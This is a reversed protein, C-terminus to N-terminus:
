MLSILEELEKLSTVFFFTDSSNEVVSRKEEINSFYNKFDLKFNSVEIWYSGVKFDCVWRRKTDLYKSYPVHIEPNKHKLLQYCKSEFESGFTVGDVVVRRDSSRCNPCTGRHTSNPSVVGVLQTTYESGCIHRLTIYGTQNDPIESVVESDLRDRALSALEEKRLHWPLNGSKCLPCGLKTGQLSTVTTTHINSCDNCKLTVKSRNNTLELIDSIITYNLRSAEVVARDKASLPKTYESNLLKVMDSTTLNYKSKLVQRSYGKPYNSIYEAVGTPLKFNNSIYYEKISDVVSNIDNM